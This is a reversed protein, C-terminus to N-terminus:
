DAFKVTHEFSKLEATKPSRSGSTFLDYTREIEMTTETYCKKGVSQFDATAKRFRSALEGEQASKTKDFKQNITLTNDESVTCNCHCRDMNCIGRGNQDTPPMLSIGSALFLALKEISAKEINKVKIQTKIEDFFDKLTVTPTYNKVNKEANELENKAKNLANWAADEEKSGDPAKKFNVDAQKVKNEAFEVQENLHQREAPARSEAQKKLKSQDIDCVTQGNVTFTFRRGEGGQFLERFPLVSTGSLDVHNNKLLIGIIKEKDQSHQEELNKVKGAKIDEQLLTKAHEKTVSFYSMLFTEVHENKTFTNPLDSKEFANRYENLNKCKAVSINKVFLSKLPEEKVFMFENKIAETNKEMKFVFFDGNLIKEKNREWFRERIEKPPEKLSKFLKDQIDPNNDFLTYFRLKTEETTDQKNMLPSLWQKCIDKGFLKGNEIEDKYYRLINYTDDANLKNLDETFKREMEGKSKYEYVSRYIHANPNELDSFLKEKDKFLNFCATKLEEDIDRDNMVPLLVNEYFDKNKCIKELVDDIQQNLANTRNEKVANCFFGLFKCFANKLTGWFGSETKLGLQEQADKDQICYEIEWLTDLAKDMNQRPRNFVAQSHLKILTRKPNNAKQTNLNQPITGVNSEVNKFQNEQQIVANNDSKGNGPITSEKPIDSTGTTRM